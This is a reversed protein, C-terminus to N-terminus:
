YVLLFGVEAIAMSALKLLRGYMQVTPREEHISVVNDDKAYMYPLAYWSIPTLEANM